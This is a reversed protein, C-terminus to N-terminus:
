KLNEKIQKSSENVGAKISESLVSHVVSSVSPDISKKNETSEKLSEKTDKAQFKDETKVESDELISQLKDQIIQSLKDTTKDVFPSDQIKQVLYGGAMLWMTDKTPIFINLSSAICLTVVLTKLCKKSIVTFIYQEGCECLSFSYVFAFIIIMVISLPFIVSLLVSFKTIFGVLYLFLVIM